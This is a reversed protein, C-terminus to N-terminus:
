LNVSRMPDKDRMNDLQDIEYPPSLIYQKFSKKQGVLREYENRSIIVVDGDRRHVIQMRGMLANNFLESFKNKADTIRWEDM